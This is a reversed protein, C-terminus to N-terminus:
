HYIYAARSFHNTTQVSPSVVHKLEVDGKPFRKEFSCCGFSQLWVSYRSMSRLLTYMQTTNSVRAHGLREDGVISSISSFM